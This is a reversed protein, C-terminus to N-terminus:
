RLITVAGSVPKRGKNRPDIIYYYTGAPLDIGNFQGNWPSSYGKLSRYVVEGYRNFVQVTANTYSELYKINWLDNNPSFANPVIPQKLVKIFVNDMSVCGQDSTVSLTYTIDDTPSAMPDPIDYQSLGQKPTWEYILNSGSAKAYMKIEGGELMVTDKGANVLPSPMVTITQSIAESCGNNSTFLYQLNHIGVGALSPNFIGTSSLGPGSFTAIGTQGSLENAQSIKFPAAEQCVDPISNFSVSPAALLIIDQDVFDSCSGGSYAVMRVKFTKNASSTPFTFSYEKGPFPDEDVFKNTLDRDFDLFWEIKGITGFNVALENRFIVKKNSCLENVNLVSFAAKPIAGNVTFSKVITNVCGAKSSVSLSVQYIGAVTFRHTPNKLKSTNTGAAAADNGFNWLYTLESGDSITTSDTFQAFTDEICVKPVGFNVVPLLNILVSKEFVDSECGFETLVKLKVLYTGSLEFSHTFPAPSDKEEIASQDGFDWTWKLIKGNTSASQDTFTLNKNECAPQAFNFNAVPLDSITIVQSIVDSSCGSEGEAMLKVTYTGSKKFVHIPNQEMSFEEDGFDWLWKVINRGNASSIDKFAIPVEKCAQSLSSIAASPPNVSSFQLETVETSGCGNISTKNATVIIKYDKLETYILKSPYLYEYLGDVSNADTPVPNLIELPTSGDGLDWLIRNTTSNLKLSLNLAENVCVTSVLKNSTAKRIEVGLGKVNAGAAYGYSEANGFGYAIANFGESAELNHTGASVPIQANSYERKKPVPNFLAAQSIGDIKFSSVANGPIVINIFHKLILNLKTSYMTIQSLTQELPNLFIMEPDGVDGPM